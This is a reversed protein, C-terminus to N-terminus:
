TEAATARSTNSDNGNSSSLRPSHAEHTQPLLHTLAHSEGRSGRERERERERDDLSASALTPYRIQTGQLTERSLIVHYLAASRTEIQVTQAVLRKARECLRSSVEAEWCRTAQRAAQRRDCSRKHGQDRNGTAHPPIATDRESVESLRRVCRCCSNDSAATCGVPM